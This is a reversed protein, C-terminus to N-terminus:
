ALESGCMGSQASKTTNNIEHGTSASVGVIFRDASDVTNSSTEVDDTGFPDFDVQGMFTGVVYVTQDADDVVLGNAFSFSGSDSSQPQFQTFWDLTGSPSTM